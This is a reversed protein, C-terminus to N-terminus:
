GACTRARYSMAAISGRPTARLSGTSHRVSWWISVYVCTSWVGSSAVSTLPREDAYLFNACPQSVRAALTSGCTDVTSAARSMSM